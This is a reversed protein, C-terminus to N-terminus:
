LLYFAALTMTIQAIHDEGHQAYTQLMTELTVDGLAPHHGSRQWDTERLNTLLLVWRTHLGTLISLSTHIDAGVGDPLTAWQDQGYLKLTPHDETLILKMRIISNMHSDVLHHVNQAVTWEGDITRTTLQEFTLPEVIAALREPFSRITEIMAHRQQTTFM